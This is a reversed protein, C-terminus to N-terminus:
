PWRTQSAVNHVVAHWILADRYGRAAITSRAGPSFMSSTVLLGQKAGEHMVDAYLGKVTVKDIKERQRKCQVIFEPANTEDPMWLRIDVGDDHSGPGLETRYGFRAFCEATLEEFKRWHIEGLKELNVSLFDILRQDLFVGDPLDAKGGGKFLDSLSVINDWQQWRSIATSPLRSSGYGYTTIGGSLV